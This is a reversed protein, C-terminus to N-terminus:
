GGTATQPAAAETSSAACGASALKWEIYPVSANSPAGCACYLCDKTASPAMDARIVIRMGCATKTRFETGLTSLANRIVDTPVTGANSVASSYASQLQTQAAAIGPDVPSWPMGAFAGAVADLGASAATVNFITTGQVAGCQAGTKNMCWKTKHANVVAQDCTFGRTPIDCLAGNCTPDNKNNVGHVVSAVTGVQAQVLQIDPATLQALADYPYLSGQAWVALACSLVALITLKM